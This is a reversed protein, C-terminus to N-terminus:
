LSDNKKIEYGNKRLNKLINKVMEEKEFDELFSYTFNSKEAWREVDISKMLLEEIHEDKRTPPPIPEKLKPLKSKNKM